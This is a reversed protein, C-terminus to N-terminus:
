NHKGLSPLGGSVTYISRRRGGGHQARKVKREAAPLVRCAICMREYSWMMKKKGCVVCRRRTKGTGLQNSAYYPQVTAPRNVPQMSVADSSSIAKKAGDRRARLGEVLKQKTGLSHKQALARIEEAKNRDRELRQERAQVGVGKKKKSV